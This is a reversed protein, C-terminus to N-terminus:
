GGLASAAAGKGYKADFQDRLAPNKKLMSVAEQPAGGAAPASAAARGAGQQMGFARETLTHATDTAQAIETPTPQRAQGTKPDKVLGTIPDSGLVRGINAELIKGYAGTDVAPKEIGVPQFRNVPNGQADTAKRIVGDAGLIGNGDDTAVNQGAPRKLLTDYRQTEANINSRQTEGAEKLNAMTRQQANTVPALAAAQLSGIGQEYPSLGQGYRSTHQGPKSGVSIRLNRAAIGSASRPDENAISILDSVAGRQADAVEAGNDQVGGSAPASPNTFQGLTPTVRGGSAESLAVGAGPHTFNASPIVNRNALTNIEDKSVTRGNFVATGPATSDLAAPTSPALTPNSITPAAAAATKPPAVLPVPATPPTAAAEPLGALGRGFNAAGVATDRVIGAADNVANVVPTAVAGVASRVGQGASNATVPSSPATFPGVPNFGASPISGTPASPNQFQPQPAAVPAPAKRKAGPLTDDGVGNIPGDLFDQLAM